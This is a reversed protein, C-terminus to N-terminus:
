TTSLVLSVTVSPEDAPVSKICDETVKVVELLTSFKVKVPDLLISAVPLEKSLVSVPFEPLLVRSPLEPSSM